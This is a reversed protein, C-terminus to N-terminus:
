SCFSDHLIHCGRRLVRHTAADTLVPVVTTNGSWCLTPCCAQQGTSQQSQVAPSQFAELYCLLMHASCCLSAAPEALTQSEASQYSATAVCLSVSVAWMWGCGRLAWARSLKGSKRSRSLGRPKNEGISLAYFYHSDSRFQPLTVALMNEGDDREGAVSQQLPHPRLSPPAM